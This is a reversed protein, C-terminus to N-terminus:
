EEPRVHRGPQPLRRPLSQPRIAALHVDRRRRNRTIGEVTEAGVTASFWGDLKTMRSYPEVTSRGQAGSDRPRLDAGQDGSRVAPGEVEPDFGFPLDPVGAKRLGDLVRDLDAYNKFPFDQMALLGTYEGYDM